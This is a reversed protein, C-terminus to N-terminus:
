MMTQGQKAERGLGTDECRRQYLHLESRELHYYYGRYVQFLIAILVMNHFGLALRIAYWMAELAQHSGLIGLDAGFAMKSM